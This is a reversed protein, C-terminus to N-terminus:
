ASPVEQPVVKVSKVKTLTVCAIMAGSQDKFIGRTPVYEEAEFRERTGDDYRIEWRM